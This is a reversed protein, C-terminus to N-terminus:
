PLRRTWSILADATALPQEPLLAHGAHEIVVLEAKPGIASRLEDLAPPPSIRDEAAGIYLLPFRDAARLWGRDRTAAAAARQAKAVPPHWGSLWIRADAGDAFYAHRLHTLREPESLAVDFSATISRRMDPDPETSVVAAMMVVAQVLDPRDHALVRVVWNGAAHGAAVVRAGGEQEIVAAADAAMDHLTNGDALPTSGGIGRPEPSLVRFGADVIVPVIRSFDEAGRGLSPILLIPTGKGAATYAIRIEGRMAVKHELAIHGEGM